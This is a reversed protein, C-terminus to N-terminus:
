ILTLSLSAIQFKHSVSNSMTIAVKHNESPSSKNQM